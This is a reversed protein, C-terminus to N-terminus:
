HTRIGCTLCYTHNGITQNNQNCTTKGCPTLTTTGQLYNIIVDQPTPPPPGTTLEPLKHQQRIANLLTTQVYQNLSYGHTQCHEILQQKLWGPITTTLNYKHDPNKPPEPKRPM